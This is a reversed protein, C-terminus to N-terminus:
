HPPLPLALPSPWCAGTSRSGCQVWPRRCWRRSFDCRPCRLHSDRSPALDPSCSAKPSSNRSSDEADRGSRRAYQSRGAVRVGKEDEDETFARGLQPRVGLVSWFNGTVRRAPVQEPDGDGSIAADGSTTAAIDTFVTNLRRWEYWKAPTSYFKSEGDSKTLDDWIMVLRDADAYPLPRILVTDVASFMATIGGIGLALTAIAIASFALNRRIQRLGYGADRGLQELRM